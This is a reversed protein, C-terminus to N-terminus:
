SIRCSRQPHDGVPADLAGDDSRGGHLRRRHRADRQETPLGRPRCASRRSARRRHRRAHRTATGPNIALLRDPMLEGRAVEVGKVCFRTPRAARAAPQRRRAGAARRRRDRHRDAPPDRARAHLLTGGQKEDVLAVLAYGVEVSLPDVAAVRGARGTPPPRRRPKPRGDRPRRTQATPTPPARRAAAAVLLFAMKPLGPILALLSCCAPPRRRAAAAARAAAGAVEEGLNSESAARTTILGGSM